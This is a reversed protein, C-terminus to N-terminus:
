VMRMPRTLPPKMRGARRIRRHFNQYGPCAAENAPMKNGRHGAAEVYCGHVGIERRQRWARPQSEASAIQAISRHPPGRNVASDVAHHM